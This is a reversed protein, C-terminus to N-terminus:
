EEEKSRIFLILVANLLRAIFHRMSCFYGGKKGGVCGSWRQGWVTVYKLPVLSKSEPNFHAPRSALRQGAVLAPTVFSHIQV